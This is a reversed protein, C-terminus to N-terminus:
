KMTSVENANDALNLLQRVKFTPPGFCGFAGKNTQQVKLVPKRHHDYMVGEKVIGVPKKINVYTDLQQSFIGSFGNCIRWQKRPRANYM